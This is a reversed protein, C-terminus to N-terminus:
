RPSHVVSGTGRCGYDVVYGAEGQTGQSPPSGGGPGVVGRHGGHGGRRVVTPREPALGPRAPSPHGALGVGIALAGWLAVSLDPSGGLAVLPFMFVFPYAGMALPAFRAPGDWRRERMIAVGLLVMGAATFLAGIPYVAEALEGTALSVGEAVVFAVRGVAALAVGATGLRRAGAAAERRLVVLGALLLVQAGLWIVLSASFRGSGEAAGAGVAAGALWASGGGIWLARRLRTVRAPDARLSTIATATTM